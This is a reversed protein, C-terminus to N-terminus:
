NNKVWKTLAFYTEFIELVVILLILGLATQPLELIYCIIASIGLLFFVIAQIKIYLDKDINLLGYLKIKKDKNIFPKVDDIMVTQKEPNKTKKKATKALIKKTKAM